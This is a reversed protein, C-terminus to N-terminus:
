AAGGKRAAIMDDAVEYSMKAALKGMVGADWKLGRTEAMSKFEELEARELLGIVAGLCKGAFWDRQTMGPHQVDGYTPSDEGDIPFGHDSLNGVQQNRTGPFALGGDDINTDTM